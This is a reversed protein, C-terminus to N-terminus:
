KAVYVIKGNVITLEVRADKIKEHDISFIDATLIVMDAYKGIELTGKLKEQFEAYASGATYAKVAEEVSFAHMKRNEGNTTAAFISLLPNFDTIPADSGFALKVGGDAMKKYEGAGGNGRYFLWPQVSAITGTRAFRPIAAAGANQAHEIRFRRDRKGNAKEVAEFIGLIIDNPIEGIAHMMVQLGAKDAGGIENQLRPIEAEDGDSFSKLCGTRVIEAESKKDKGDFEALRRWDTLPICDYVRTKLKGRGELERYIASHDDSHVDHVSTVGLSAAYNTATEAVEAWNTTHAAPIARRLLVIARGRLIGTPNDESDREIKGDPVDRTNQGIGAAKLALSNALAIRPDSHYLFVPNKPSVADISERTPMTKETWNENNWQGGLIWRGSPLFEAYRTIATAMESASKAGSLDISSFGNGIAMFHVHADNFGPLVLRGRADIRTTGPSAMALIPKDDGIAMIKGGAVALATARPIKEAMTRINANFIILDVPQSDPASPPGANVFLFPFLLLFRM